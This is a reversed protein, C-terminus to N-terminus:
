APTDKTLVCPLSYVCALNNLAHKLQPAVRPSGDCCNQAKRTGDGKITYNWHQCLVIADRPAPVPPGYMEQKAMSDLQKFEANEWEKWNPLRRLKRRTFNGLGQEESM